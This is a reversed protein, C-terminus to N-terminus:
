GTEEIKKRVKNLPTSLMGGRGLVPNMETIQTDLGQSCPIDDGAEIVWEKPWPGKQHRLTM